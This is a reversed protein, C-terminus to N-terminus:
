CDTWRVTWTFLCPQSRCATMPSGPTCPNSRASGWPRSPRRPRRRCRAKSKSSWNKIRAIAAPVDVFAELKAAAPGAKVKARDLKLEAADALSTGQGNLRAIIKRAAPEGLAAFFREKHAGWIVELPTEPLAARRVTAGDLTVEAAPPGKTVMQIVAALRQGIDASEASTELVLALQVDPEKDTTELGLLGVGGSSRVILPVLDLLEAVAKAHPEERCIAQKVAKLVETLQAQEAADLPNSWGAYVLTEAPFLAAPDGAAAVSVSVWLGLVPLLGAAKKHLCGMRKM